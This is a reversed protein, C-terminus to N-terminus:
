NLSIVSFIISVFVLFVFVFTRTDLHLRQNRLDSGFDMLFTISGLAMMTYIPMKAFTYGEPISGLFWFVPIAIFLYKYNSILEKEKKNLPKFVFFLSTFLMNLFIFVATGFLYFDFNQLVNRYMPAEVSSVGVHFLILGIVVWLPYKFLNRKNNSHQSPKIFLALMLTAMGVLIWLNPMDGNGVIGALLFMPVMVIKRFVDMFAMSSAANVLVISLYQLVFWLASITIFFLFINEQFLLDIYEEKAMFILLVAGPIIAYKQCNMIGFASVGQEQLKRSALMFMKLLIAQLFVVLSLIM